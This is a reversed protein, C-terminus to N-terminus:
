LDFDTSVAALRSEEQGAVDKQCIVEAAFAVDVALYPTRKAVGPDEEVWVHVERGPALCLCGSRSRAVARPPQVIADAKWIVLQLRPLGTGSASWLPRRLTTRSVVSDLKMSPSCPM